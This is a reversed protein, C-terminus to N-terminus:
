RIIVPLGAAAVSLLGGQRSRVVVPLDGRRCTLEGAVFDAMEGALLPDHAVLAVPVLVMRDEEVEFDFVEYRCAEVVLAMPRHAPLARLHALLATLTLENM